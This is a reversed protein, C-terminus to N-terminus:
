AFQPQSDWRDDDPHLRYYAADALLSLAEFQSAADITKELLNFKFAPLTDPTLWEPFDVQHETHLARIKEIAAQPDLANLEHLFGVHEKYTGLASRANAYALDLDTTM